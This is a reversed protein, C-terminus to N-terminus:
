YVVKGTTLDVIQIFTGEVPCRKAEDLTAFSDVFDHWGGTERKHEVDFSFVLFPRVAMTNEKIFLTHPVHRRRRDPLGADTSWGHRSICKRCPDCVVAGRPPKERRDEVPPLADLFCAFREVRKGGIIAHCVPGSTWALFRM